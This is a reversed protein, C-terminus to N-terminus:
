PQKEETRKVKREGTADNYIEECRKCHENNGWNEHEHVCIACKDDSEHWGIM